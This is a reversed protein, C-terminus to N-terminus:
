KLDVVVIEPCNNLRVPIISNGIGRSTIQIAGDVSKEGYCYEPLFQFDPTVLGRGGIIFQGGHYHGSLMVDVGYKAYIDLNYPEHSLLIVPMDQPLTELYNTLDQSGYQEYTEYSAYSAYSITGDDLGALAFEKGDNDKLIVTEDRLVKVGVSTLDDLFNNLDNDSFRMEHNGTVYYTDTVQALSKATEVAISMNTHRSDISDGTIVIYDPDLNAVSRALAESDWYIEANHLDSIQVIRCNLGLNANYNTVELHNNQYTCFICIAVHLILMLPVTITFKQKRTKHHFFRMGLFAGIGGGLVAFGILVREPIRWKGAISKTKDVGYFVFALVNILVYYIVCIHWFQM